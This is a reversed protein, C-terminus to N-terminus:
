YEDNNSITVFERWYEGHFHTFLSSVILHIMFLSIFFLGPVAFGLFRALRGTNKRSFMFANAALLGAGCICIVSIFGGAFRPSFVGLIIMVIVFAYPWPSFGIGSTM